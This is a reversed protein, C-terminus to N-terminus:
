GPTRRPRRLYSIKSNRESSRTFKGKKRRKKRRGSEQKSEIKNKQNETQGRNRGFKNDNWSLTSQVLRTNGVFLSVPLYSITLHSQPLSLVLTQAQGTRTRDAWSVCARQRVCPVLMWAGVLKHLRTSGCVQSASIVIIVILNQARMKIKIRILFRSSESNNFVSSM